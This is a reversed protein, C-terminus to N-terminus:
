AAHAITCQRTYDFVGNVQCSMIASSNRGFVDKCSNEWLIRRPVTLQPHIADRHRCTTYASRYGAMAVANVVTSDFRGDPYAFHEIKIGLMSEAKQKSNRTETVVKDWSENTLYVHSCTHSGVTVGSKKMEALMEWSLPRFERAETEQIVYRGALERVIQSLKSRPLSQLFARTMQYADLMVRNNDGLIELPIDLDNLLKHLSIQKSYLNEFARSLLLYIEDHIQLGDTGVLDTVVFVTSPIGKRKLLPFANYYVDSYGDDFTIAAVPRTMSKGNLLCEQIDDISMFEYRQGVWDLHRELTKTSILMPSISNRASSRYDSVVRHYGLILPMYKLGSLRGMLGAIGTWYMASAMGTKILRRM